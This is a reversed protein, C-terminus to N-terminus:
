MVLMVQFGCYPGFGPIASPLLKKGLIGGLRAEGLSRNISLGSFGDFVQEGLNWLFVEMINHCM